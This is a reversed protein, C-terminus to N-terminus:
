VPGPPSPAATGLAARSFPGTTDARRPGDGRAVCLCVDIRRQCRPRGRLSRMFARASCFTFKYHDRPSTIIPALCRCHGKSGAAPLWAPHRPPTWSTSPSSASAQTRLSRPGSTPASPREGRRGAGPRGRASGRGRGRVFREPGPGREAAAGHFPGNMCWASAQTVAAPSTEAVETKKENSPNGSRLGVPPQIWSARASFAPTPPATFLVCPGRYM